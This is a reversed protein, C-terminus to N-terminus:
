HLKQSAQLARYAMRREELEREQQDWQDCFGNWKDRFLPQPKAGSAIGKKNSQHHISM